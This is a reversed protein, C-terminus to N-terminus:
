IRGFGPAANEIEELGVERGLHSSIYIGETILATKLAIGATDILPAKGQQAGVWHQQSGRYYAVSEDCRGWRTDASQTDFVGDLEMDALTTYYELPDVRLGGKSGYIRDDNPDNAHIAWSEEMMFTVDGALRVLGMGLEEVNYKGSARRDEYMGIKQYTKGSVSILDPNGLLWVIRAIHYVAMDLM